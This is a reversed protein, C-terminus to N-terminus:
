RTCYEIFERPIGLLRELNRPIMSRSRIIARIIEKTTEKDSWEEGGIWSGFFGSNKRCTPCMWEWIKAKQKSLVVSGDSLRIRTVVDDIAPLYAFENHCEICERIMGTEGFFRECVECILEDGRRQLTEGCVGCIAEQQDVM